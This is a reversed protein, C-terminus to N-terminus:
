SDGGAGAAVEAFDAGLVVIVDATTPAERGVALVDQPLGLAEVVGVGAERLRPTDQPVLVASTRRGLV